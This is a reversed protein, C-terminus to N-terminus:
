FLNSVFFLISCFLIAETFFSAINWGLPALISVFSTLGSSVGTISTGFIIGFFGPIANTYGSIVSNIIVVPSYRRLNFLYLINKIVFILAVFLIM